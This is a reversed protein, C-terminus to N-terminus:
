RLTIVSVSQPCLPPKPMSSDLLCALAICLSYVAPALSCHGLSAYWCALQEEADKSLDSSLENSTLTSIRGGGDSQLVAYASSPQLAFGQVSM